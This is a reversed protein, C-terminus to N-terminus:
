TIANMKEACFVAGAMRGGGVVKSFDKEPKGGNSNGDAKDGAPNCTGFTVAHNATIQILFRPAHGVNLGNRAQVSDAVFNVSNHQLAQRKDSDNAENLLM